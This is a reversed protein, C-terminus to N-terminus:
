SYILSIYYAHTYLIFIEIYSDSRMCSSYMATNLICITCWSCNHESDGATTGWSRASRACTASTHGQATMMLHIQDEYHVSPTPTCWSTVPSASKDWTPGLTGVAGHTAAFLVASSVLSATKVRTPPKRFNFHSDSM